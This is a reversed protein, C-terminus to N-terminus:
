ASPVAKGSAYAGLQLLYICVKALDPIERGRRRSVLGGLLRPFAYSSRMLSSDGASIAFRMFDRVISREFSPAGRRITGKRAFPIHAFRPYARLITDTHFQHYHDSLLVRAPISSLFDFLDSDLYPCWVLRSCYWLCTPALGTVRRTRNWFFFSGLPNGANTHRDLERRVREAAVRRSMLKYQKAPLIKPLYNESDLLSDALPDLEGQEYWTQRQEDNSWATSLTDGAVGEYLTDFSSDVDEATIPIWGHETTGLNTEVNKRQERAVLDLPADRVVHLVGAEEALMQAVKVDESQWEPTSRISVVCDPLSGSECLELFIHRSDRGGSLPVGCRGEAPRRRVAQRFLEIYGDIADDWTIPRAEQICYCSEIRLQGDAWSMRANPPLLRITSFPTDQGVFSGMRLFVALAEMDLEPRIGLELLKCLSPSIIIEGGNGTSYFLPQFGYRDNWVDLRRGDWNWAVFPDPDGALRNLHGVNCSPTGETITASSTRRIRFYPAKEAAPRWMGRQQQMSAQV